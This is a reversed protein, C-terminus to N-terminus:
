NFKWSTWSSLADPSVNTQPDQEKSNILVSQLSVQKFIYDSLEKYTLKGRTVQLKKLLYYTFMGHGKDKHPLSSQDGSSAAFVIFNGNLPEEKPKIKAGRAAILGQNRAGGSFCADLFISVRQTSYEALEKYLDKVKIGYQVNTGSIDVPILYAEKTVEDPLGHGAYYFYLEAKGDTKSAITKLKAISQRMQGSTANTLLTINSEPIGLTKQAYEKFITADKKAFDVDVEANLDTQFTSYDENGIILAFRYPHVTGSTPINVDVDSIPDEDSVPVEDSIPDEDIGASNISSSPRSQPSKADVIELQGNEELPYLRFPNQENERKRVIGGDFNYGRNFESNGQVRSKIYQMFCTIANVRIYHDGPKNVTVFVPAMNCEKSRGIKSFKKLPRHTATIEAIGKSDLELVIRQGVDLDFVRMGNIKIEVPGKPEARSSERFFYITSNDQGNLTSWFLEICVIIISRLM